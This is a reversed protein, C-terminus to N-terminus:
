GRRKKLTGDKRQIVCEQCASGEGFYRSSTHWLKGSKVHRKRLFVGSCRADMLLWM